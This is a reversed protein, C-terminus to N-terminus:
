AKRLNATKKSPLELSRGEQREAIAIVAESVRIESRRVRAESEAAEKARESM